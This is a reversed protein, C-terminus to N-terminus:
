KLKYFPHRRKNLQYIFCWDSNKLIEAKNRTEKIGTTAIRIFVTIAAAALTVPPLAGTLSGVFGAFGGWLVNDEVLQNFFKRCTIMDIESIEQVESQMDSLTQELLTEFSSLNNRKDLLKDAAIYCKRRAAEIADNKQGLVKDYHECTKKMIPPCFHSLTNEFITSALYGRQFRHLNKSIDINSINDRAMGGCKTVLDFVLETELIINSCMPPFSIYHNILCEALLLSKGYKASEEHSLMDLVDDICESMESYYEYCRWIFQCGAIRFHEPDDLLSFALETAENFNERIESYRSQGGPGVCSIQTIKTALCNIEKSVETTALCSDTLCIGVIYFLEALPLQREKARRELQDFVIVPKELAWPLIVCDLQGFWLLSAGCDFIKPGYYYPFLIKKPPFM